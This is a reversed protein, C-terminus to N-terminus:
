MDSREPEGHVLVDIGVKEQGASMALFLNSAGPAVRLGAHAVPLALCVSDPAMGAGALLHRRQQLSVQRSTSPM